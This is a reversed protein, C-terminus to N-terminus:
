YRFSKSASIPCECDNNLGTIQVTVTADEASYNEPPEVTITRTGQGVIRGVSVTWSYGLGPPLPGSVFASFIPVPSRTKLHLSDIRVDPCLCAPASLPPLVEIAKTIKAGCHGCGDDVSATITYTGPWVKNLDWTVKTGAGVIRGGNVSYSYILIDGEPDTASTSVGITLERSYEAYKLPSGTPSPIRVDTKDLELSTVNPSKNEIQKNLDPRLCPKCTTQGHLPFGVGAGFFSLGFFLVSWWTM